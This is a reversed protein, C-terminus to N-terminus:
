IISFRSFCPNSFIRQKSIFTYYKARTQYKWYMMMLISCDALITIATPFRFSTESMGNPYTTMGEPHNWGSIYERIIIHDYCTITGYIKDAYKETLLM